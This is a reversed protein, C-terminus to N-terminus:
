YNKNNGGSQFTSKCKIIFNLMYNPGTIESPKGPSETTFYGDALASVHVQDGLDPLDGLSPFALAIRYEQRPYEMSLPVQHAVTWPIASSNSVVYHSFWM